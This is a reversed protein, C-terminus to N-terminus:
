NLRASPGPSTGNAGTTGPYTLAGHPLTSPFATTQQAMWACRHPCDRLFHDGGCLYCGRPGTGRGRGGRGRGRGAGRARRAGGRGRQVESKGPVREDLQMQLAQLREELVKVRDEQEKTVVRASSKAKERSTGEGELTHTRQKELSRDAEVQRVRRLADSVTTPHADRVKGRIEDDPIANVFAQVGLRELLPGGVGKYAKSTLNRVEYALDEWTQKAGKQLTQLRQAFMEEHEPSFHSRLRAVLAKFSVDQGKAAVELARGKLRALLMVGKKDVSWKHEEALVEFQQLYDNFDVEGEYKGPLPAKEKPETRESKSFELQAQELDKLQCRYGDMLEKMSVLELRTEALKAEAAALKEEVSMKPTSTRFKLLEHSREPTVVEEPLYVGAIEGITQISTEDFLELSSQSITEEYEEDM